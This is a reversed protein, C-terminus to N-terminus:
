APNDATSDANAIRNNTQVPVMRWFAGGDGRNEGVRTELLDLDLFRRGPVDNSNGAEFFNVNAFSQSLAFFVRRQFEDVDVRGCDPHTNQHIVRWKGTAVPFKHSSTM